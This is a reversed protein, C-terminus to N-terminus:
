MNWLKLKRLLDFNRGSRCGPTMSRRRLAPGRPAPSCRCISTPLRGPAVRLRVLVRDLAGRYRWPSVGRQRTCEQGIAAACHRHVAVRRGPVDVHDRGRPLTIMSRSCLKWGRTRHACGCAARRHSWSPASRGRPRRSGEPARNPGRGRRARERQLLQRTDRDLLHQRRRVDVQVLDGLALLIQLLAAVAAQVLEARVVIRLHSADPAFPSFARGPHGM